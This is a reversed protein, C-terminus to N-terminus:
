TAEYCIASCGDITKQPGAVRVFGATQMIQDHEELTYCTGRGGCLKYLALAYCAMWLAEHQQELTSWGSLMLPEHVVVRGKASISKRINKALRQYDEPLWDHATNSMIVLDAAPVEVFIDAQVYELSETANLESAMERAFQLGARQDVLVGVADSSCRELIASLVYPSGAGLDAIRRVSAHILPATFDALPQAFCRARSALGYAIERAVDATETSEMLSPADDFGYLPISSSPFDGRLMAILDDAADAPGMQLYPRRTWSSDGSLCQQALDTVGWGGDVSKLVDMAHLVATLTKGGAPTLAFMECFQADGVSETAAVREVLDLRFAARLVTAAEEFRLLAYFPSADTLM